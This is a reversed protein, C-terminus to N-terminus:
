IDYLPPLTVPHTHVQVALSKAKEVLQCASQLYNECSAFLPHDRFSGDPLAEQVVFDDSGPEIAIIM